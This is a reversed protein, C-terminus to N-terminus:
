ANKLLAINMKEAFASPEDIHLGIVKFKKKMGYLGVLECDSKLRIIVNHSELDGLPSLKKTRADKALSKRSLEIDSVKSFPIESENMIGYRLSLSNEHISIPRQSLSKAFGLMQIATYISLATLGWAVSESWLSLLFHLAVIEVGIILVLSGFLAPSGSKKHYSFENELLPRARWNVFGYYLVSAETSLPVVLKSPLIHSCTSKLDSFFDPASSDLQAYIKVANRIKLIVFVLISTEIVPLVWTKFLSLYAQSELPLFYSGIILGIVMVPVVTTKPIDTKRILLFYVLPITLLLDATIALSLLDGGPLLSSNMLFVLVTMLSLPIGFIFLNRNFSITRNM